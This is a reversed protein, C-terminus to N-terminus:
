TSEIMASRPTSRRLRSDHRRCSRPRFSNRCSFSVCADDAYRRGAQGRQGLVEAIVGDGRRRPRPTAFSKSSWRTTSRSTRPAPTVSSSRSPSNAATSRCSGSEPRRITPGSSSAIPGNSSRWSKAASGRDAKAVAGVARRCASWIARPPMARTGRRSSCTKTAASGIQKHRAAARIRLRVSPASVDGCDGPRSSEAVAPGPPQHRVDASRGQVLRKIAKKLDAHQDKPLMLQKALVRPKVPRYNARHVHRLVLQELDVLNM